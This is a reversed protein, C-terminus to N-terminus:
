NTQESQYADDIFFIDDFEVELADVIKKAIVAGPHHQGKIIQHLYPNSMNAAKALSKQDFGKKMMLKRFEHSDILKIKM